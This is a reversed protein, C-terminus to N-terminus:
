KSYGIRMCCNRKRFFLYSFDEGKIPFSKGIGWVFDSRGIPQCCKGAVQMTQPIPYTMQMKYANKNMIPEYYGGCLGAIGYYSKTIMIRHMKAMLRYTILLSAQLSGNHTVNGSMPPILGHCGGCWFLNKFGFGVNAAVCDAICAGIGIPNAFLAIEPAVIASFEDDDWLPDLETIYALDYSGNERCGFDRLVNLWSLMPNLYYHAQYFSKNIAGQERSVQAGGMVEGGIDFVDGGLGVMCYPTNTVDISRAPEWFAIALGVSLPPCYCIPFGNNNEADEQDQGFIPFNGLSIPFLCSWCIDSIPNPFDGHCTLQGTQSHAISIPTLETILLLFIAILKRM